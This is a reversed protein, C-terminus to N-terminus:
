EKDRCITEEFKEKASPDSLILHVFQDIKKIELQLYCNNIFFVISDKNALYFFINNIRNWQTEERSTIINKRKLKNCLGYERKQINEELPGLNFMSCIMIHDSDNCEDLNNIDLFLAYEFLSKPMSLLSEESIGFIIYKDKCVKYITSSITENYTDLLGDIYVVNAKSGTIISILYQLNVDATSITIYEATCSDLLLSLSDAIERGLIKDVILAKGAILSSIINAALEFSEKFYNNLNDVLALFLDELNKLEDYVYNENEVINESIEHYTGYDILEIPNKIMPQSQSVTEVVSLLKTTEIINEKFDKLSKEINAKTDEQKAELSDLLRRSQSIKKELSDIELQKEIRQKKITRLKEEESRYDKEIKGLNENWKHIKDEITKLEKKRSERYIQIKEDEDIKWKSRVEELCREFITNDKLLYEKIIQDLKGNGYINSIEEICDNLVISIQELSYGSQQFYEKLVSEDDLFVRLVNLIKKRENNSIELLSQQKRIYRSLYVPIIDRLYRVLFIEENTPLELKKYFFRDEPLFDDPIYHRFFKETSIIDEKSISYLPLIFIDHNLDEAKPNICYLVKDDDRNIRKFMGKNCHLVRYYENEKGVVLLLDDNSKENLHFGKKLKSRVYNENFNVNEIGEELFVIEYVNGEKVSKQYIYPSKEYEKEWRKLLAKDEQHEEPTWLYIIRKEVNFQIKESDFDIEFLEKRDRDYNALRYLHWKGVDNQYPICLSIITENENM